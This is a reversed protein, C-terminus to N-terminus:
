CEKGVHREESRKHPSVVRENAQRGSTIGAAAALGGVIQYLRDVSLRTDRSSVFLAASKSEGM